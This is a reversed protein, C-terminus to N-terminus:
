VPCFYVAVITRIACDVELAANRGHNELEVPASAM